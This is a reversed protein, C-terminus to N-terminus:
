HKKIGCILMGVEGTGLEDVETFFPNNVALRLVEYEMQSYTLYIKSRKKIVGNMVRTLIVVGQYIDFWSDFLLAQLPAERNGRPYPIKQVITECLNEIGLGMKQLFKM